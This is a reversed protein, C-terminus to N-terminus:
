EAGKLRDEEALEDETVLALNEVSARFKTLSAGPQTRGWVIAIRAGDKTKGKAFGKVRGFVAKTFHLTQVPSGERIEGTLGSAM